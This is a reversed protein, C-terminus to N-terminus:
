NKGVIVVNIEIMMMTLMMGLENVVHPNVCTLGIRLNM